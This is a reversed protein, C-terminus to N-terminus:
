DTYCFDPGTTTRYPEQPTMGPADAVGLFGTNYLYFKAVKELTPALSDDYQNYTGNPFWDLVGFGLINVAAGAGARADFGTHYIEKMDEKWLPYVSWVRRTCMGATQFGELPDGTNCWPHYSCLHDHYVLTVGEHGPPIWAPSDPPADRGDAMPEPHPQVELHQFFGAGFHTARVMRRVAGLLAQKQGPDAAQVWIKFERRPNWPLYLDHHTFNGSLGLPRHTGWSPPPNHAGVGALRRFQADRDWVRRPLLRAYGRDHIDLPRSLDDARSLGDWRYMEKLVRRDDLNALINSYVAPVQPDVLLYLLFAAHPLYDPHRILVGLQIPEAKLYWDHSRGYTEPDLPLIPEQGEPAHTLYIRVHGEGDTRGKNKVWNDPVGSEPVVYWDMVAGVVPAETFTDLVYLDIWDYRQQPDDSPGTLDGPGGHCSFAWGAWAFALVSLVAPAPIRPKPALGMM